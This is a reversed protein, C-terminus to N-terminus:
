DEFVWGYQEPDIGALLGAQDSLAQGCAEDPIDWALVRELAPILCNQFPM